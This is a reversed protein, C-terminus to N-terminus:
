AIDRGRDLSGDVFPILPLTSKQSVATTAAGFAVTELKVMMVKRVATAAVVTHRINLQHAFNMISIQGLTVVSFLHNLTVPFVLARCGTDGLGRGNVSKSKLISDIVSRVEVGVLRLTAAKISNKLFGIAGTAPGV